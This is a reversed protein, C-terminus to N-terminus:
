GGPTLQPVTLQPAFLLLIPRPVQVAPVQPLWGTTGHPVFKVQAPAPTHLQGAGLKLSHLLPLQMGAPAFLQQLLASQAPVSAEQLPVQEAAPVQVYGLPLEQPLLVHEPTLMMLGPVQETPLHENALGTVQGPLKAQKLM